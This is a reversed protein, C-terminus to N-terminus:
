FLLEPTFTLRRETASAVARGMSGSRRLAEAGIRLSLPVDPAQLEASAGYELLTDRSHLDSSVLEERRDVGEVSDYQGYGIFAGLTASRLSLRARLRASFGLAYLYQERALVSKPTTAVNALQWESFAFPHIGAFDGFFVADFAGRWDGAHLWAGAHPGLLHAIAFRDRSGLIERQNLRFATTLAVLAARGEGTGNKAITFDQAYRGLLDAMFWLDVENQSDGGWSARSRM